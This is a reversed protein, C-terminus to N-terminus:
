KEGALLKEVTATLKVSLDPSYGVHIDRVVGEADIVYLTPFGQVRYMKEEGRALVNTYGLRLKQVVFRADATDRDVNMGIVAVPKGQYKQAFENLSPMARICWPCGRYWFDLIVVKGRYDTLSHMMGDLDALVWAPAPYGVLSDRWAADKGLQLGVEELSGVEDDFMKQVTSDTVRARGSDMVAKASDLLAQRQAPGDSERGLLAWYVSDAELFVALGRDFRGAQTTDLRTVSDLTTVSSTKSAYPGWNQETEAEKRTVLSRRTNFQFVAHSSTFYISDLPTEYDAHILRISDSPGPEFRYRTRESAKADVWEWTQGIGASDAPLPVFVQSPDLAGTSGVGTANGDAGLDCRAWEVQPEGDTRTGTSDVRYPTSTRRLVLRRSQDPNQGVVWVETLRVQGRAGQAYKSESTSGYCLRSGVTLDYRLPLGAAAVRGAAFLAALVIVQRLAAKM